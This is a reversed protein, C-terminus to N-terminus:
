RALSVWYYGPQAPVVVFVEDDEELDKVRITM